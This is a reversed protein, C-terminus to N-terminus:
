QEFNLEIVYNVVVLHIQLLPFVMITITVNRNESKKGIPNPMYLVNWLIISMYRITFMVFLKNQICM